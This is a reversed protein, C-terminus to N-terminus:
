VLEPAPSLLHGVPELERRLEGAVPQAREVLERGPRPRQAVPEPRNAHRELIRAVFPHELEQEAREVRREPEGEVELMRRPRPDLLPERLTAGNADVVEVM